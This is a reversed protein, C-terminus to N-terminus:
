IDLHEFRPLGSVQYDAETLVRAFFHQRRSVAARYELKEYSFTMKAGVEAGIYAMVPLEVNGM